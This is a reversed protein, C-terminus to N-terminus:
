IVRAASASPMACAAIVGSPRPFDALGEVVRRGDAHHRARRFRVADRLGRNRQFDVARDLLGARAALKCTDEHWFCGNEHAFQMKELSKGSAKAAIIANMTELHWPCGNEFSYKM